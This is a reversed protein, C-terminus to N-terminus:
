LNFSDQLWPNLKAEVKVEVNTESSLYPHALSQTATPRFHPNFHLLDSLLSLAPPSASPFHTALNPTPHTPLSHLYKVASDNTIFSMQAEDPSGLRGFIAM